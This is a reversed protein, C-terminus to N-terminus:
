NGVIPQNHLERLSGDVTVGGEWSLVEGSDDSGGGGSWFLSSEVLASSWARRSEAWGVEGGEWGVELGRWGRWSGGVAGEWRM